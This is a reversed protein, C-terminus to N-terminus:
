PNTTVCGGVNNNYKNSWLAQVPYTGNKFTVNAAAGQGSAIWACKDGNEAGNGDLWGGNPFADTVSEAYEHGEVITIGATPGLNNFNAGCASGADTMYPLNTYAITGLTSSSTSSHWACYQTGFGSSSNKSATAILFQRDPNNGFIGAIKIAENALDSQTPHAPSSTNDVYTQLSFATNHQVYFATPFTACNTAGTSINSCYQTTSTSWSDSGGYLGGLFGQLIPIEGSPDGNTVWQSGWQVLVVTPTHEVSGGRYALNNSGGRQPRASHADNPRLPAMLHMTNGVGNASGAAVPPAVALVAVVACIGGSAVVARVIRNV